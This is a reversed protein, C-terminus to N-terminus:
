TIIAPVYKYGKLLSGVVRHRGDIISYATTIPIYKPKIGQLVLTKPVYTYKGGSQHKEVIIPQFVNNENLGNIVNDMRNLMNGVLKNDYVLKLEDLPYGYFKLTKEMIQDIRIDKIPILVYNDTTNYHSM